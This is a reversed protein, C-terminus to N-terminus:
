QVDSKKNGCKIANAIRIMEGRWDYNLPNIEVMEAQIEKALSEAVVKNFGAQVLVVKVGETKCKVILNELEKANTEKGEIEISFQTLGYDQSFYSLAPHAIVFTRCDAGDLTKRVEADVSDIQAILRETNTKYENVNTTDVKCVAACIAKCFLRANNPSTWIHPDDMLTEIAENLNVVPLNANNKLIKSVWVNEFGLNGVKILIKSDTMAMLQQPTPNYNEPSYGAPVMSGVTFKRGVIQETIYRLPEITVTIQKKAGNVQDQRCSASLFVTLLLLILSGLRFAKDNTYTPSSKM